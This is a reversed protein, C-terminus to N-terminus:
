WLKPSGWGQTKCPHAGRIQGGHSEQLASATSSWTGRVQSKAADHGDKVLFTLSPAAQATDTCLQALGGAGVRHYSSGIHSLFERHGRDGQAGRPLSKPPQGAFATWTLEPSQGARASRSWIRSWPHGCSSAAGDKRKALTPVVFRDGTPNKSHPHQRPGREDFRVGPLM